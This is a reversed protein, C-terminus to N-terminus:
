FNNSLEVITDVPSANKADSDLFPVTEEVGSCSNSWLVKCNVSVYLDEQQKWCTPSSIHPCTHTPGSHNGCWLRRHCRSSRCVSSLGSKRRRTRGAVKKDVGTLVLEAMMVDLPPCVKFRDCQRQIMSAPKWSIYVSYVPFHDLMCWTDMPLFGKKKGLHTQSM